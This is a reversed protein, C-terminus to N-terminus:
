QAKEQILNSALEDKKKKKKKKKSIRLLITIHVEVALNNLENKKKNRSIRLFFTIHRTTM